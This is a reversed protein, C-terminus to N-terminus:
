PKKRWPKRSPAVPARQCDWSQRWRRASAKFKAAPFVASNSNKRSAPASCQNGGSVIKEHRPRLIFTRPHPYRVVCLPPILRKRVSQEREATQQWASNLQTVASACQGLDIKGAAAINLMRKLSKLRMYHVCTM